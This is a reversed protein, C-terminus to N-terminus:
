PSQHREAPEISLLRKTSPLYYARYVQDKGIVEAAAMTEGETLLRQDGITLVAQGPGKGAGTQETVPGEVVAVTPDLLDRLSPYAIVGALVLAAITGLIPGLVRMFGKAFKIASLGLALALLSLPVGWLVGTWLPATQGDAVRGERNAVLQEATFGFVSALEHTEPSPAV